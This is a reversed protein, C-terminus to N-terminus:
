NGECEIPGLLGQARFARTASRAFEDQLQEQTLMTTDRGVTGTSDFTLRKFCFDGSYGAARMGDLPQGINVTVHPNLLANDDTNQFLAGGFDNTKTTLTISAQASGSTRQNRKMVTWFGDGSQSVIAFATMLGSEAVYHAQKDMRLNGTSRLEQSATQVAILGLGTVALLIFLSIILALGRSGRRTPRLSLALVHILTPPKSARM